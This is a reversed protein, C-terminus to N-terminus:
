WTLVTTMSNKAMCEGIQMADEVAFELNDTHMTIRTPQQFLDSFKGYGSTKRSLYAYRRILGKDVPFSAKMVALQVEDAMKKGLRQAWLEVAEFPLRSGIVNAAQFSLSSVVGKDRSMAEPEKKELLSGTVDMDSDTQYTSSAMYSRDSDSDYYDYYDYPDDPEYENGSSDFMM